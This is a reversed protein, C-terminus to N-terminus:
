RFGVSICLTQYSDNHLTACPKVFRGGHEVARCANGARSIGRAGPRVYRRGKGYKRSTATRSGRQADGRGQVTRHAPEGRPIEKCRTALVGQEELAAGWAFLLQQQLYIPLEGASPKLQEFDVIATDVNGLRIETNASLLAALPGISSADWRRAVEDLELAAAPFDDARLTAMASGLDANADRAQMARYATVIGLMAVVVALGGAVWGVVKVHQRAWGLAWGTWTMLEDPKKLDKRRIRRRAM